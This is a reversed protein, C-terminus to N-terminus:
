DAGDVEQSVVAQQKNPAVRPSPADSKGEGAASAKPLFRPLLLLFVSGCCVAAGSVVMGAAFSVNEVILSILPPGCITGVGVGLRSFGHNLPLDEPGFLECLLVSVLAILPGNLFGLMLSWVMLSWANQCCFPMAMIHLGVSIQSLRHMRRTGGVRSTLPGLFMRCAFSAVGTLSFALATLGPPGKLDEAVFHAMLLSPAHYGLFLVVMNCWWCLYAPNVCPFFFKRRQRDSPEVSSSVQTNRAAKGNAHSPAPVSDVTFAPSIALLVGATVVGFSCMAFQWGHEKMLVTVVQPLVIAGLSSGCTALGVSRARRDPTVLINLATLGALNAAGLSGGIITMAVYLQAVSQAMSGLVYGVMALVAGLAAVSRHSLLKPILLGALLSGFFNAAMNVSAISASLSLSIDFHQMFEPVYLGNCALPGFTCTHSVFCAAISITDARFRSVLKPSAGAAPTEEDANSAVDM